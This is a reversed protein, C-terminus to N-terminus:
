RLPLILMGRTEKVIVYAKETGRRKREEQLDM